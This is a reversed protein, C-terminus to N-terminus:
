LQNQIEFFDHKIRGFSKKKILRHIPSVIVSLFVSYVILLLLGFLDAMCDLRQILFYCLFTKICFQLEKKLRDFELCDMM